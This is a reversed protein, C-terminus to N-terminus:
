RLGARGVYGYTVLLPLTIVGVLAQQWRPMAQKWENDARVPVVGRAFRVRNGGITHHPLSEYEGVSSSKGETPLVADKHGVLALVRRLAGDSDNVLSEYRILVHPVGRRTQWHLLANKVDWELASRVLSQYNM